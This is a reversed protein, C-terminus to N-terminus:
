ENISVVDDAELYELIKKIKHFSQGIRNGEKHYEKIKKVIINADHTTFSYLVPLTMIEGSFYQQSPELLSDFNHM